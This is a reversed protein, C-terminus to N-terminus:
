GGSALDTELISRMKKDLLELAPWSRQVYLLPGVLRAPQSDRDFCDLSSYVVVVQSVSKFRDFQPFLFHGNQEQSSKPSDSNSKPVRTLLLQFLQSFWAAEEEGFTKKFTFCIDCIFSL